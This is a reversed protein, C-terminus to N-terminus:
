RLREFIWVLLSKKATIIEAQGKMEPTLELTYNSSTVLPSPFKIEFPIKGELTPVKGKWSVKATVAGFEHFPYNEFKVIVEQDVAVKGSGNAKLGGRGVIENTQLPSIVALDRGGGHQWYYGERLSKDFMVVGNVPSTLTYRSIWKETNDLLTRYSAQLAKSFELRSDKSGGRYGELGRSIIRIESEKGKIDAELTQLQGELALEEARLRRVQSQQSKSQSALNQERITNEKALQLQARLRDQERKLARIEAQETSIRSRLERGDLNDLQGSRQLQYQRQKETFDYMYEQLEGLLWTKDIPVALLVSDNETQTGVVLLKDSLDFVHAFNAQSRFVVIAEGAHVTDESQLLLHEIYVDEKPNLRQVPEASSVVVEAAVMDPYKVWYGVWGLLVLAVFAALTGWRVLWRPPTSLIELIEESRINIDDKNQPEMLKTDTNGAPTLAAAGGAGLLLYRM